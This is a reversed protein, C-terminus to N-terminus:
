SKAPELRNTYIVQSLLSSLTRLHSLMKAGLQPAFLKKACFIMGPLRREM